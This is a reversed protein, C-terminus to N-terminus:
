SLKLQNKEVLFQVTVGPARVLEELSVEIFFDSSGSAFERCPQRLDVGYLIFDGVSQSFHLRISLNPLIKKQSVM